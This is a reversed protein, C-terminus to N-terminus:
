KVVIRQGVYILNPNSIGNASALADVTTGYKSAIGSLTDGSQVTYVTETNSQGNIYARVPEYKGCWGLAAERRSGNGYKGAWVEAALEEVSASYVHNILDQVEQYRSGLYQKRADGDIHNEVVYIMLDVADTASSDTPKMEPVPEPQEGDPYAYKMWATADMYAKNLDLYGGWGDLKGHSSYQRIACSYAGENWPSDQWGTPKNDAYQAVWAGSDQCVDWPFVAQSSYKLCIVGTREKVRDIFRQLYSEDGWAGNDGQEWDACLIGHKIYGACNDVFYDAEGVADGGEIYHYVGWPIGERIAQQVQIDCSPSVYHKGQTAKIIVGDMDVAALNIGNQWNSIDLVRMAM